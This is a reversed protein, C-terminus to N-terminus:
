GHRVELQERVAERLAEACDQHAQASAGLLTTRMPDAGRADAREAMADLEAASKAWGDALRLAAQLAALLRPVHQDMVRHPYVAGDILDRKVEALYTAVQDTDPM